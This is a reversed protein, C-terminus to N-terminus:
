KENGDGDKVMLQNMKDLEQILKAPKATAHGYVIVMKGRDTIEPKGIWTLDNGIKERLRMEIRIKMEDINPINISSSRKRREIVVKVRYAKQLFQCTRDLHVSFDHEHMCTSIHVEKQRQSLRQALEALEHKRDCLELQSLPMLRCLPPSSRGDVLVLAHQSRNISSLISSLSHTGNQLQGNLDVYKIVTSKIMENIIRGNKANNAHSFLKINSIKGLFIM